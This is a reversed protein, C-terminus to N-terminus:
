AALRTLTKSMFTSDPLSESRYILRAQRDIVLVSSAHRDRDTAGNVGLGLLTDVLASQDVKPLVAHWHPGAQFKHMWRTLGEPTDGLPDLSLSVLQLDRSRDLTLQEQVQAFIAGLVPCSSSCTTLVFQLATVRGSLLTRLTTPRGDELAIAIDPVVRPPRVLGPEEDHIAQGARAGCAALTGLAILLARRTTDPNV